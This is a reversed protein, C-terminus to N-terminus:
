RATLADVVQGAPSTWLFPGDVDARRLQSLFANAAAESEFPGTLLRNTQGWASVYGKKARFPDAARRILRRWDAGLAAKDRGTAVQVWIRSPHSPPAPKATARDPKPRAAIRRIDVAGPAPAADITPRSLDSFADALSQRASPRPAAPPPAVEAPVAQAPAAPVSAAPAPASPEPRVAVAAPTAASVSPLAALDFGPAATAARAALAPAAAAAAAPPSIPTAAPPAIVPRTQSPNSSGAPAAPAVVPTSVALAANPSAVTARRTPQLDPPAVRAANRSSTGSTTVSRRVGSLLPGGGDDQVVRTPWETRSSQRANRARSRGLPEGKPVLAADAAALTAPRRTSAPAYQAVRPDDRGIESPLPFTGFNAAAAQQAPTLRPMYRLYPAIGSALDVPLVTRAIAVAEETQGLIALAFARTRWSSKDQRLLLPSLTAEAGRRDGAIAQSLSLRRTVDDSAGRALAQRYYRQASATDGVLDFALGRDAALASDLAGAKEAEEFLPIAGFPDGNRVMAGALGAKVRPNGPAVQDARRFFGTAADVDGMVLAANGADVLAEIDRPNRALRNLAGNLALGDSGPIAQVVPQAHVTPSAAFSGTAVLVAAGTLARIHGELIARARMQGM